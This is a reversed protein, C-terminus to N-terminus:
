MVIREPTSSYALMYNPEAIEVSYRIAKRASM